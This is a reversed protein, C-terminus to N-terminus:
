VMEGGHYKDAIKMTIIEEQLEWMDSRIEIFYILAKIFYLKKNLNQKILNIGLRLQQANIHNNKIINMRM